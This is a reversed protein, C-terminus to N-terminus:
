CFSLYLLWSFQFCHQSDSVSLVVTLLAHVNIGTYAYIHMTNDLSVKIKDTMDGTISGCVVTQIAFTCLSGDTLQYVLVLSMLIQPILPAAAM